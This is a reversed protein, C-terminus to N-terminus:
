RVDDGVDDGSPSEARSGTEPLTGAEVLVMKKPNLHNRIANNVQELTLAEVAEPYDDLWHVDYGRLVAQRIAIAIDTTTSLGVRYSGILSPKRDALEEETVGDRWWDELERRTSAIGQDLLKPAFTASISWSGDTFTDHDIGAGIGYTLGEKDRVSAMLRGTIGSGLIATGVRLALADPDRYQLSTAQGLLVAVSTKEALLVREYKADQATAPSAPRLYDVGGSWGDFAKAVEEHVQAVDVDGVLVLMLHSPGYHRQHFDRVDELTVAQAAKLYEAITPTHNPHGSPFISRTLVEAARAGVNESIGKMMGIFQERAKRFEAAGFAPTRLQEAILGIVLPLDPKLTRAYITVAQTDVSFSIAAGVSELQEAIAFKDQRTTGRDLMMGTLTPAALNSGGADAFADGAPLTVAITVVDKISTPYAIVDVGAVRERTVRDAIGQRAGASSASVATCGGLVVVTLVIRNYRRMRNVKWVNARVM